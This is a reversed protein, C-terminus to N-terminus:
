NKDFIHGYNSFVDYQVWYSVNKLYKFEENTVKALIMIYLVYIQQWGLGLQKALLWMKNTPKKM